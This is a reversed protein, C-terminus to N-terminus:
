AAVEKNARERDRMLRVVEAQTEESPYRVRAGDAALQWQFKAFGAVQSHTFGGVTLLDALATAKKLRNLAEHANM